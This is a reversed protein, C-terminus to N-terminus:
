IISSVFRMILRNLLSTKNRLVLLAFDYCFIKKIHKLYLDPKNQYLYEAMENYFFLKYTSVFHPNCFRNVSHFLSEERRYLVLETPNLYLKYGARTLFFWQPYDECYRYEEKYLFLRITDLHFFFTPTPPFSFEYLVEHQESANLSFCLIAKESLYSDTIIYEGNKNEFAKMKSFVFRADPNKLVYDINSSICNTLLIDDGGIIKGWEGDGALIAQNCNASVGKNKEAIIIKTRVFRESNDSLWKRCVDVTDDTSGDDSIILELSPYDQAKASELTEVITRSSNYALVLISVLPTDNM